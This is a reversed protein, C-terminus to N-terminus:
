NQTELVKIPQDITDPHEKFQKAIESTRDPYSEVKTFFKARYCVRDSYEKIPSFSAGKYFVVSPAKETREKLYVCLMDRVYFFSECTYTKGKEIVPLGEIVPFEVNPTIKDGEKYNPFQDKM